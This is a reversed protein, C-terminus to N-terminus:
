MTFLPSVIFLMALFYPDFTFHIRSALRIPMGFFILTPSFIITGCFFGIVLYNTFLNMLGKPFLDKVSIVFDYFFFEVYLAGPKRVFSETLSSRYYSPSSKMVEPKMEFHMMVKPM